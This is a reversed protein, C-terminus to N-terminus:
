PESKDMSWEVKPLKDAVAQYFAHDELLVRGWQGASGKLMTPTSFTLTIPVGDPM